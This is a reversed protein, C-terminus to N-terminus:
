EPTAQELWSLSPPPPSTHISLSGGNYQPTDIFIHALTKVHLHIRRPVPDTFVIRKEADKLGLKEAEKRISVEAADSTGFRLLWLVSDPVGGLIQVWARLTPADIQPPSPINTQPFSHPPPADLMWCTECVVFDDVRPDTADEPQLGCM